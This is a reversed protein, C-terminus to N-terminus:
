LDWTLGLKVSWYDDDDGPNNPRDVKLPTYSAGFNLRWNERLQYAIGANFTETTGNSDVTSFDIAGNLLANVEVYPDMRSSALSVWPQLGLPFEHFSLTLEAGYHDMELRDDSPALCGFLNGPSSPPLSAIDKDCTVDAIVAGQLAFVRMGLGWNDGGLLPRSLALGWLDDPKAGNIELPPTWSVEATVDWILGLSARVRGFAPSKNLDEHKFGGFGVQQQERDLRPISGLEASFSVDGFETSQPPLQGLNLSSATMFAMAWGEPSEFDVDEHTGIVIQAFGLVPFTTLILAFLLSRISLSM